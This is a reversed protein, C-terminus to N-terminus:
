CDGSIFKFAKLSPAESLDTGPATNSRVDSQGLSPIKRIRSLIASQYFVQELHKVLQLRLLKRIDTTKQLDDESSEAYM